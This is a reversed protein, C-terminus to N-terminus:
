FFVQIRCNGFYSQFYEKACKHKFAFKYVFKNVNTLTLFSLLFHSNNKACKTKLSAHDIDKTHCVCHLGVHNGHRVYLKQVEQVHLTKCLNHYFHVTPFFWAKKKMPSPKTTLFLNCLCHYGPDSQIVKLILDPLNLCTRHQMCRLKALPPVKTSIKDFDDLHPCVSVRYM